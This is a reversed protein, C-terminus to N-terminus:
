VHRWIDCTRELRQGRLWWERRRRGTGQQIQYPGYFRQRRQGLARGLSRTRSAEVEGNVPVEHADAIPLLEKVAVLGGGHADWWAATFAEWAATEPDAAALVAERNALFDPFGAVHLIGGVVRTWHEFSGLPPVAPPPSGAAQWARVFVALSWLLDARHAAVWGDLDPHRFGTRLEPRATEPVLRVPVVRRSLDDAYSANNGTLVWTCHVRARVAASQGLVRDDWVTYTLAKCLAPSAVRGTVNDFLVAQRREILYATLAKRVEAEERPLTAVTWGDPGLTPTLCTRALKGKGAGRVAADVALLPTPGDVMDRVLPTLALALAATHDAPEAFPFDAFVDAWWLHAERLDDGGPAEPVPHPTWDFALLVGSTRDYGPTDLYRGDPAFTPGTTVARLVPVPPDPDHVIMEALDRPVYTPVPGEAGHRVCRVRCGLIARVDATLVPRLALAGDDNVVRVLGAGTRYVGADALHPFAALTVPRDLVTVDLDPRREKPDLVVRLSETSRGALETLTIGAALADDLGMKRGDPCPDLHIIRVHAGRSALFARLRRLAQQVKPNTRADSDFALYVARDRLTIVEWAPIAYKKWAWVGHLVVVCAAGASLAADGKKQGETIWLPVGADGLADRAFPHTDLTLKAGRPAEYKRPRGRTDPRPV